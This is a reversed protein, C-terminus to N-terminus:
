LKRVTLLLKGGFGNFRESPPTASFFRIEEILASYTENTRFDQVTVINGTKEIGELESIRDFARDDESGVINNYKDMEVDYCYLPFQILRQKEIAPLAKIQYGSMVAGKTNDTNSRNLDFKFALYEQAGVPRAIGLDLNTTEATVNYLFTNVEKSTITNVDITGDDLNGRVKLFKFFKSEITAYRIFGTRLYGDVVLRTAAEIYSFDTDLAFIKRDSTGLFAV